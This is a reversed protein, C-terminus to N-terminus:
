HYPSWRSRCEKGVRREESRQIISQAFDKFNLKGTMAFETLKDAADQAWEATKERMQTTTDTWNDLLVEFPTRSERFAQTERAKLWELYANKVQQREAVSIKALDIKARIAIRDIELSKSAREADDTRGAGAPRVM